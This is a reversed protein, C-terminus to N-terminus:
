KRGRGDVFGCGLWSISHTWGSFSATEDSEVAGVVGDVGVGVVLVVM